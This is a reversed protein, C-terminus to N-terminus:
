AAPQIVAVKDGPSAYVPRWGDAPLRRSGNSGDAVAVPNPGVAYWCEETADIEFVRHTSTAVMTTAVSTGGVTLVETTADSGVAVPIDGYSMRAPALRALTVNLPM